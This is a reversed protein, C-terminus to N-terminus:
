QNGILKKEWEWATKIICSLDDFKPKWRLEKKLKSSDAVLEPPDGARRGVIKVPFDIETIRKVMDLVEKV